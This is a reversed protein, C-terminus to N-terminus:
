QVRYVLEQTHLPPPPFLVMTSPQAPPSRQLSSVSSSVQDQLTKMTTKVTQLEERVTQLEARM